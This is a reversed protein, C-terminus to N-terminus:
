LPESLDILKHATARATQYLTAIITVVLGSALFFFLGVLFWKSQGDQWDSQSVVVAGTVLGAALVGLILSVTIAKETFTIM